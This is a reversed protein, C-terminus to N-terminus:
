KSSNTDTSGTELQKLLSQASKKLDADKGAYKVANELAKKAEAKDTDALFIGLNYWVNAYEPNAKLVERSISIAKESDGLYYNTLALDGGVAKDTKDLDYAAQWHTRALQFKEAAATQAKTDNTKQALARAWQMYISALEVQTDANKPDQNVLAETSKASTQYQADIESTSSTQTKTQTAKDQKAQQRDSIIQFIGFGAFALVTAVITIWITVRVWMPSHSKDLSMVGANQSADNNQVSKQHKKSKQAKKNSMVVGNSTHRPM